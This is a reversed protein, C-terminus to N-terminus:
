WHRHNFYLFSITEGKM